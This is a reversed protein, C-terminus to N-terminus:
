AIFLLSEKRFTCRPYIRIPIRIYSVAEPRGNNGLLYTLVLLRLLVPADGPAAGPAADADDEGLRVLMGDVGSVYMRGKSDIIASEPATIGAATTGILSHRLLAENPQLAGKGESPHPAARWAKLPV